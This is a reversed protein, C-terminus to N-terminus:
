EFIETEKAEQIENLDKIHKNTMEQVDDLARKLNDDSLEHSNNLKKLQDNADRRINRIAIRGDEIMGHVLKVLDKRREDNLAPIRLRIVQGDNMPNLGLDSNQIAKEIAGLSTKDFPQIVILQAEPITLQAMNRIITPTGYYDVKITDLINASARGTRITAVESQYHEVAKNMRSQTDVFISNIM